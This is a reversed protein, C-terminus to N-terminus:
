LADGGKKKKLYWDIMMAAEFEHDSVSDARIGYVKEFRHGVAEKPLNGKWEMPTPIFIQNRYLKFSAALYGVIFALDITFGKQAAIKGKTSGQFTPYELILIDPIYQLMKCFTVIQSSVSVIGQTKVPHYLDTSLKKNVHDWKAIGVNNVSPDIAVINM